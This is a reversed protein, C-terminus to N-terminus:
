AWLEKWYRKWALKLEIIARGLTGKTVQLVDWDSFSEPDLDFHVRLMVILEANSITIFRRMAHDLMQLKLGMKRFTREAEEVTVGAQKMVAAARATRKMDTDNSM